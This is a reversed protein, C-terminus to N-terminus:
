LLAEMEAFTGITLDPQLEGPDVGLPALWISYLGVTQAGRVDSNLSDGVMATEHTGVGLRELAAEFLHPSPKGVVEPRIGSAHSVAAVLAGCGPFFQGHEVPLHPDVNVAVLAAGGKVARALITLKRYDFEFDHGIVVVRAGGPDELSVLHHGAEVLLRRLTDSGIALVSTPGFRERLYPGAAEAGSLIEERAARIGLRALKAQLAAGDERSNNTLFLIRRGDRRLRDLVALVGPVLSEGVYVCGDLDFIFARLSRLEM